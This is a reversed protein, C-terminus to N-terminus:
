DCLIHLMEADTGYINYPIPYMYYGLANVGAGVDCLHMAPMDDSELHIRHNYSAAM